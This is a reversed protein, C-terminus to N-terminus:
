KETKVGYMNGYLINKVKDLDGLYKTKNIQVYSGKEILYKINTKECTYDEIIIHSPGFQSKKQFACLAVNSNLIKINKGKVVSKDKANIAIECRDIVLSNLIINSNEGASIAKDKAGIIKCSDVSINSGSIDIADNGINNFKCNLIKGLAFDGDFADSLINNFESNIIKMESNMINIFDDGRKNSNFLCNDFTVDAHYFNVCGSLKWTKYKLNSLNNFSVFSFQSKKDTNFIFLGEGNMSESNFVISDNISGKVYFPSQSIIKSNKIFNLNTGSNIIILYGKPIILDNDIIHNGLKFEIISDSVSIYDYEDLKSYNIIIPKEFIESNSILTNICKYTSTSCTNMGLYRYNISVNSNTQFNSDLEIQTYNELENLFYSQLLVTDNFVILDNIYISTIEIPLKNKNRIYLYSTNNSCIVENNKIEPAIYTNLIKNLKLQNNILVDKKDFVYEPYSKWIIQKQIQAEKANIKFFNSLWKSNSYEQIYKIYMKFFCEDNFLRESFPENKYRINGRNKIPIEVAKLEGLLGEQEIPNIFQNDYAVPEILGTVPNLYFKLNYPNSAHHHGLFEILAFL